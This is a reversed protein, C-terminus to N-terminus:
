GRNNDQRVIGTSENVISSDMDDIPLTPEDGDHIRLSDSFSQSQSAAEQSTM